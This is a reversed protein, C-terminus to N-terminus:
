HTGSTTLHKDSAITSHSFELERLNLNLSGVPRVLFDEDNMRSRM